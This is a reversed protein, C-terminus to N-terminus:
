HKGVHQKGNQGVDQELCRRTQFIDTEVEITPVSIKKKPDGQQTSKRDIPWNISWKYTLCRDLQLCTNEDELLLPLANNVLESVVYWLSLICFYFSNTDSSVLTLFVIKYKKLIIFFMFLNMHTARGLKWPYNLIINDFYTLIANEKTRNNYVGGYDLEISAGIAIFRQGLYLFNKQWLTPLRSVTEGVTM